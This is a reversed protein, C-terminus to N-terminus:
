RWDALERWDIQQVGPPVSLTHATRDLAGASRATEYRLEIGTEHTTGELASMRVTHPISVGSKWGHGEYIVTLVDGPDRGTITVRTVAPVSEDIEVEVAADGSTGNIVLREGRRAARADGILRVLSVDVLGLVLAAPDLSSAGSAVDSLCGTVEVLKAPFYVRACNEDVLAQANLSAGLPGYSPRLDARLWGPRDYLAAFTTKVTRGSVLFRAEGTARLSEPLRIGESLTRLAQDLESEVVPSWEQRM